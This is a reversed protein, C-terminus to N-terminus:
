LTQRLKALQYRISYDFVKSGIQIVLGGIIAEDVKHCIDADGGLIESLKGDVQQMVKGPLSIAATVTVTVRGVAQDVLDGFAEAVADLHGIRDNQALLALLNATKDTAGAKAALATLVAQKKELPVRPNDVFRRFEAQGTADALTSLQGRVQESATADGISEFLASAYRRAITTDTM